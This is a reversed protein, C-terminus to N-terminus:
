TNLQLQNIKLYQYFLLEAVIQFKM